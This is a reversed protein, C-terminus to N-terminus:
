IVQFVKGTIEKCVFLVAKTGNYNLTGANVDLLIEGGDKKYNVTQFQNPGHKDITEKIHQTTEPVNKLLYKLSLGIFDERKIGYLECAKSNVDIVIQTDPSFILIADHSQESLFKYSQEYKSVSSKISELESIKNNLRLSLQSIEATRDRVLTELEDRSMNFSKADEYKGSSLKILVAFAIFLIFISVSSGGIMAYRTFNATKNSIERSMELVRREETKMNEVIRRIRTMAENGEDMLPKHLKINTGKTQQLKISQEFLYFKQRILGRLTDLNEQQVTNGLTGTKIRTYLTDITNSANNYSWLLDPDDTILYGRRGTEADIMTSLLKEMRELNRYSEAIGNEARLLDRSNLYSVITSSALILIAIAILAKAHQKNISLIRILKDL